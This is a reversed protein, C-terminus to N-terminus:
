IVALNEAFAARLVRGIEFADAFQQGAILINGAALHAQLDDVRLRKGVGLVVGDDGAQLAQREVVGAIEAIEPQGPGVAGVIRDGDREEGRFAFGKEFVVQGLHDVGQGRGFAFDDAHHRRQRDEAAGRLRREVLRRAPCDEVLDAIKEIDPGQRRLQALNGAVDVDQHQHM